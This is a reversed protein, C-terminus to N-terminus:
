PLSNTESDGQAGDDRGESSWRGRRRQARFAILMAACALLGLVVMIGALGLRGIDAILV